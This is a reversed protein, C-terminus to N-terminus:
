MECNVRFTRTAAYFTYSKKLIKEHVIFWVIMRIYYLDGQCATKRIANRANYFIEEPVGVSTQDLTGILYTKLDFLNVILTLNTYFNDVYLTQGKNLYNKILHMVVGCSLEKKSSIEGNKRFHVTFSNSANCLCWM